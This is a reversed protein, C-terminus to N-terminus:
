EEISHWIIFWGVRIFLKIEAVFHAFLILKAIFHSSFTFTAIFEIKILGKKEYNKDNM